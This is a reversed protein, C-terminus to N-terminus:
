QLENCAMKEEGFNKHLVAVLALITVRNMAAWEM